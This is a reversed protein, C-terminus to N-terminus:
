PRRQSRRKRVVRVFIWGFLIAMLIGARIPVRSRPDVAPVRLTPDGVLTFAAWVMAPDGRDLSALKAARISEGVTAGGALGRYFDQILRQGSRDDIAWQTALVSEAGAQLLPATLGQV